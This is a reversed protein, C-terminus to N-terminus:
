EEKEPPKSRYGIAGAVAAGIATTALSVPNFDGGKLADVVGSLAAAGGGAGVAVLGTKMNGGLKKWWSKKKETPEIKVSAFMPVEREVLATHIEAAVTPVAVTRQPQVTAESIDRLMQRDEETWGTPTLPVAALAHMAQGLLAAIETRTM